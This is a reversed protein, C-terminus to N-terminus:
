HWFPCGTSKVLMVLGLREPVWINIAIISAFFLIAFGMLRAAHAQGTPWYYLNLQLFGLFLAAYLFLVTGINLILDLSVGVFTVPYGFANAYGAEFAYSYAYLLATLGPIV